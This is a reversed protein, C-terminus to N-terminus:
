RERMQNERAVVGEGKSRERGGRQGLHDPPRNDSTKPDWPSSGEGRERGRERRKRRGQADRSRGGTHGGGRARPERAGERVATGPGNRAAMRAGRAHRGPGRCHPERAEARCPDRAEAHRSGQVGRAHGRPRRSARGRAGECVTGAEARPGRAGERHPM